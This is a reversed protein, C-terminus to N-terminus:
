QQPRLACAERYAREVQSQQSVEQEWAGESEQDLGESLGRRQDILRPGGEHIHRRPGPLPFRVAQMLGGPDRDISDDNCSLGVMYVRPVKRSPLFPLVVSDMHHTKGRAQFLVTNGSTTEHAHKARFPPSPATRGQGLGALGHVD